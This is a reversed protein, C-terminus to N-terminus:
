MPPCNLKKAQELWQQADQGKIEYERDMDSVNSM